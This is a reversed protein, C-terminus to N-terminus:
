DFRLQQGGIPGPEGSNGGGLANKLGRIKNDKALENPQRKTPKYNGMWSSFKQKWESVTQPPVPNQSYHYWCEEFGDQFDEKSKGRGRIKMLQNFHLPDGFIEAFVENKSLPIGRYPEPPHFAPLDISEKESNLYENEKENEKEYHNLPPQVVSLRHNFPPEVTTLIGITDSSANFVPEATTEDPEVDTPESVPGHNLPPEVATSRQNRRPKAGTSRQNLPPEVTTSKERRAKGSLIGREKQKERFEIRKARERELRRNYWKGNQLTWKHKIKLWVPADTSGGNV